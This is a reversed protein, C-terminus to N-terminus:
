AREINDLKKHLWHIISQPFFSLMYLAYNDFRLPYYHIAKALYQRAKPPQHNNLLFKKGCLAYYSGEKIKKVDQGKIIGLLEDGEKPTAFGQRIINKKLQAFRRGRWREDITASRPNFRVKILREPINYYQGRDALQIWLLHDEFNHAHVPYGGAKLVEDKRYMVGSHIFPCELYLQRMIEDHTHGACTFNFLHEGAEDIYETDCGALVYAPHTDLFEVQQELRQPFCIDDADFRAIYGGNAASLGNNLAIGIGKKEQELLRIRPDTFQQIVSLTNDTSGDNIILLEFDTFSQRLVSAIAEAIYEAANFAPMLVTVKPKRM